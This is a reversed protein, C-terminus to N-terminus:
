ETNKRDPMRLRSASPIGFSCAARSVVAGLERYTLVTAGDEIATREAHRVAASAVLRPITGFERDGRAGESM